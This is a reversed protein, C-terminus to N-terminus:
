NKPRMLHDFEDNIHRQISRLHYRKGDSAAIVAQCVNEIQEETLPEAQTNGMLHFYFSKYVLARIDTVCLDPIPIARRLRNGSGFSPLIADAKKIWDETAFLILYASLSGAERKALSDHLDQFSQLIARQENSPLHQIAEFEDIILVLRSVRVGVFLRMVLMFMELAARPEVNAVWADFIQQLNASNNPDRAVNMVARAFYRAASDSLNGCLGRASQYVGQEGNGYWAFLQRYASVEVGNAVYSHQGSIQLSRLISALSEQFRAAGTIQVHAVLVEEMVSLVNQKLMYGIHSKGAGFEGTIAEMRMGFSPDGEVGGCALSHCIRSYLDNLLKIRGAGVTMCVIPELRDLAIPTAYTSLIANAYNTIASKLPM